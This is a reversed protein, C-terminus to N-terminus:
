KKNKDSRVTQDSPSEANRMFELDNKSRQAMRSEVEEKSLGM